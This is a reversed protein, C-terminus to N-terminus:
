CVPPSGAKLTNGNEKETEWTQQITALLQEANVSGALVGQSGDMMNEFISGPTVAEIFAPVTGNDRYKAMEALLKELVSPLEVEDLAVEGVPVLGGELIVTRNEEDFFLYDILSAADDAVDSNANVYWGEGPSANAYTPAGNPSPLAFVGIDDFSEGADEQAGPIVFGGTYTMPVVGTYFEAMTAQYTYSLPDPGFYGAEQLAVFAETAERFPQDTWSGDGYLTEAIGDPGAAGGWAASLIQTVPWADQGAAGLPTNYGADMLDDMLGTFEDWTTPIALGLEEFISERYFVGTSEISNPVAWLKGDSSVLAALDEPLTDGWGNDCYQSTLDLVLGANIYSWSASLDGAWLDPGDGSTLAPLLAPPNIDPGMATVEVRIDTNEEDWQEILGTIADVQGPEFGYWINLVREGTDGDGSTCATLTLTAAGLAAVAALVPRRLHQPTM